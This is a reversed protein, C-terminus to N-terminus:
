RGRARVAAAQAAIEDARAQDGHREFFRVAEDMAQVTEPALEVVRNWYAAAEDFRQLAVLPRVGEYYALTYRPNRAIAEAYLDAAREHEALQSARRAIRLPYRPEWTNLELARATVEEAPSGGPGRAATAGALEARLHISLVFIGGVVVPVALAAVGWAASSPLRTSFTRGPPAAALIAGALLWGTALLHPMDISVLSQTLYGVWAAGLAGLLLRREGTLERLGRILVLGVTGIWGWWGLFALLGAGGFLQMAVNHANDGAPQINRTLSRSLPRHEHYHDLYLELGQGTLPEDLGMRLGALALTGRDEASAQVGARAGALPRGGTSLFGLLLVGLVALAILKPARAMVWRRLKPQGSIVVVAFAAMSVGWSLPGQASDTLFVQVLVVVALMGSGVKAWDGWTSTLAGWVALVGVTGLWGAVFNRNGMTSILISGTQSNTWGFPDYDLLQLAGYGTVVVTTAILVKTLTAAPHARMGETPDRQRLVTAATVLLAIGCLYSLLGSHRDYSGFLGRLPAGSAAMSVLMGTVFIGLAGAVQSRGLSVRRTIAVGSLAVGVLLVGSLWLLLAKPPAFSGMLNRSFILPIAFAAVFLLVRQARRLRQEAVPLPAVPAAKGRRRAKRSQPPAAM